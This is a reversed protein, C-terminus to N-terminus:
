NGRYIVQDVNEAYNTIIEGDEGRGVIYDPEPNTVKFAGCLEWTRTQISDFDDEKAEVYRELAKVVIEQLPYGKQEIQSMLEDPIEITLRTM